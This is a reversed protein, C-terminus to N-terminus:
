VRVAIASELSESSLTFAGGGDHNVAIRLFISVLFALDIGVARPPGFIVNLAAGDGVVEDNGAVRESGSPGREGACFTNGNFFCDGRGLDHGQRKGPVIGFWQEFVEVAGQSRLIPLAAQRDLIVEAALTHLNM